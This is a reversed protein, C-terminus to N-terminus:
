NSVQGSVFETTLGREALMPEVMPDRGRFARYLDAAESTGGRSLIMDRYRKGNERTMGGNECFWAYTDQDLVEAWLYAFYGAQYGGDWIHAFYSTRYRPPVVALDMSYRALVEAEFRDFDRVPKGAPLTHWSMDILAASIYETLAYGQNFKRAKKIRDVLTQPMAEGTEHHRAYRAFVSPELAWHENFQSPFEVFDRPVNTGALMPYRVCSFMGHLAHGFEHFLTTVDDFSLLPPQGPGPKTFNAVNYVVPKADLLTSQDVFCDMWAGGSKNDRKFLDTYYLALSSGDADFVDFVRVDPHYVPIDNRPEFTIGFLQNAAYFVGDHLVRDLLFYPKIQAEDLHYEAKRVQEAYYQWDWAELKMGGADRDMLSQIRQAESRAKTIAAGGIDTLLKIAAAPTKAMQDGLVHDAATAYGLLAAREARLAILRKVLERTDNADGRDARHTAVDFLRRRVVRRALREQWPQQTTNQLPLLWRGILKREHAAEAAAAIDDESLGALDAVDDIVLGNAKTAALLRNQFDTTLTSEERNLERLRVKDADSLLAGAREFDLHYREVLQCDEPSLSLEHRQEYIARVRRFLADDLYIADSHAALQPALEVQAAQLTDNTNAGTVAAFARLVRTLLVGARELAVLTNDFTPASTQHAIAAVEALHQRMGEEIAPQYDVDRIRDFPPVGFPLDNPAFFPNRSSKTPKLTATV